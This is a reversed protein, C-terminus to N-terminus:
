YEEFSLDRDVFLKDYLEKIEPDDLYQQRRKEEDEIRKKNIAGSPDLVHKGKKAMKNVYVIFTIILIILVVAIIITTKMLKDQDFKELKEKTAKYIDM